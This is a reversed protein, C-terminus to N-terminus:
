RPSTAYSSRAGAPSGRADCGHARGDRVRARRGRHAARRGDPERRARRRRGASARRPVRAGVRVRRRRRRPRLAHVLRVRRGRRRDRARGRATAYSLEKALRRALTAARPRCLEDHVAVWGNRPGTVSTGASRGLRPLIKQAAREVAGTDDTQVHVSGFTPGAPRALRTELSALPAALTLEVPAFGWREYIAIAEANSALVELELTEAGRERWGRWRRACSSAPSAPAGRRRVCTSSTSSRRPPRGEPARGRARGIDDEALLVIEDRM